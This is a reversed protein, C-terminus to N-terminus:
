QLQKLDRNKGCFEDFMKQTEVEKETLERVDRIWGETEKTVYKEGNFYNNKIMGRILKEGRELKRISGVNIMENQIIVFKPCDKSALMMMLRQGEDESLDYSYGSGQNNKDSILWLMYKYIQQKM